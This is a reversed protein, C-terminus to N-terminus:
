HYWTTFGPPEAADGSEGVPVGKKKLSEVLKKSKLNLPKYSIELYVLSNLNLLWEPLVELQNEGLWLEQLGALQGLSEPLSKVQNEMLDLVKLNSLKGISEPLTKVQNEKLYLEKLNSLKGISESLVTLRNGDLSLSQLNNLNGLWEPLSKLQNYDLLLAQLNGLKGISYPLSELQNGDLSLNRLHTLNGFSEPLSELQNGDLSLSRLHTLNGFWKPLETLKNNDLRLDQLSTLNKFFEPITALQNNLLYLIQLHTLNGFSESFSTLNKKYLGLGTIIQGEVKVGFTVDFLYTDEPVRRGLQQELAQLAEADGKCLAMGRYNVVQELDDVTSKGHVKRMRQEKRLAMGRYDIVQELDDVTSKRHVKRMRQKRYRVLLIVVVLLLVLVIVLAVTMLFGLEDVIGGLVPTVLFFAVILLISAIGIVEIISFNSYNDKLLCSLSCYYHKGYSYSSNVKNDQCYICTKSTIFNYYRDGLSLFDQDTKSGPPLESTIFEDFYRISYSDIVDTMSIVYLVLIGQGAYGVFFLSFVLDKRYPYLQALYFVAGAAMLVIIIDRIPRKRQFIISLTYANKITPLNNEKLFLAKRVPIKVSISFKSFISKESPSTFVFLLEGALILYNLMLMNLSSLNSGLSFDLFIQGYGVIFIFIGTYLARNYYHKWTYIKNQKKFLGNWFQVFFHRTNPM